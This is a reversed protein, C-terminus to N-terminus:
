GKRRKFWSHCEDCAIIIQYGMGGVWHRERRANLWRCGPCTALELFVGGRQDALPLDDGSIWGEPWRRIM